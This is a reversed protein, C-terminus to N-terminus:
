GVSLSDVIRGAVDLGSLYASQVDGKGCWDACIGARRQGDWLSREPLPNVPRAFRWRHAKAFDPVPLRGGVAPQLEALLRDVVDGVPLEIHRTSWEASAHIVWSQPNSRGPKAGDRAVWEIASNNVKAAEWPVPLGSSFAAMVAWCPEMSVGAAVERLAPARDLLPVAQAPPTAVILVDFAGLHRGDESLLRWQDSERDVHGVRTSSRVDLGHALKIAPANMGPTGVYYDVGGMKGAISEGDITVATANWRAVAGERILEGVFRKFRPDTVTFKTAGHDFALGSDSRTSIRGGVARGKDFVTVNLQKEALARAATLGAIGGGVVAVTMM